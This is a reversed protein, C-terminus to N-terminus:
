DRALTRCDDATLTIVRLLFMSVESVQVIPYKGNGDAEMAMLVGFDQIAGPIHIPEDECKFYGGQRGTVIVHGDETQQHEFRFNLYVGDEQTGLSGLAGTDVSPGAEAEGRAAALAARKTPDEGVDDLKGEEELTRLASRDSDQTSTHSTTRRQGPKDTFAQSSSNRATPDSDDSYSTVTTPHSALTPAFRPDSGPHSVSGTLASINSDLRNYAPKVFGERGFSFDSAEDPIPSRRQYEEGRTTVSAGDGSASAEPAAEDYHQDSRKADALRAGFSNAPPTTLSLRSMRPSGGSVVRGKNGGGVSLPPSAFPAGSASGASGSNSQSIAVSSPSSTIGSGALADKHSKVVSRIPFIRENGGMTAGLSVGASLTTSTSLAPSLVSMNGEDHTVDHLPGALKDPDSTEAAATSVVAQAPHCIEAHRSLRSGPDIVQAKISVSNRVTNAATARSGSSGFYSGDEETPTSNIASSIGASSTAQLSNVPSLSDQKQPQRPSHSAQRALVAPRSKSNRGDQTGRDPDPHRAFYATKADDLAKGSPSPAPGATSISSAGREADVAQARSTSADSRHRDDAANLATHPRFTSQRPRSPDYNEDDDDDSSNEAAESSSLTDRSSSRQTSADREEFAFDRDKLKTSPHEQEEANQGHGSADGTRSAHGARAQTAAENDNESMTQHDDIAASAALDPKQVASSSSPQVAAM